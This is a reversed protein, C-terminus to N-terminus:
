LYATVRSQGKEFHTWLISNVGLSTLWSPTAMVAYVEFAVCL